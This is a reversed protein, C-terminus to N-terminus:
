KGWKRLQKVVADFDKPLDAIFTMQEGSTPHDIVLKYAHLSSRSMLPREEKDKGRKYKKGKLESLMFQDRRGYMKDIALPYGISSFHIRIQHTRGTKINAELLTFHNFYEAVEYHTVSPKGNTSIVMKGSVTKSPAIPKDIIGNDQHLKGEVLAYYIKEVSRNQFQQNLNKHAEENKAFCLIGSTEKDLRHVVFVEDTHQQLKRYVNPLDHAYRDPITLLNPPKNVIIIDEDEHIIQFKSKM